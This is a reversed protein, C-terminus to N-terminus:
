SCSQINTGAYVYIIISISETSISVLLWAHSLLAPFCHFFGIAYSSLFPKSIVEYIIAPYESRSGQAQHQIAIDTGAL